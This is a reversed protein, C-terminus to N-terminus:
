DTNNHTIVHWFAVLITALLLYKITQVKIKLTVQM